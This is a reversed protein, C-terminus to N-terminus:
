RLVAQLSFGSLALAAIVHWVARPDAINGIASGFMLAIAVWAVSGFLALWAITKDGPRARRLLNLAAVLAAALVGSLSWVFVESGVEYGDFTGYGHLAAGILLLVSFILDITRAM